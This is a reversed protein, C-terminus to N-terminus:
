LSEKDFEAERVNVIGQIEKTNESVILFPFVAVDIISLIRALSSLADMELVLILAGDAEKLLPTTCIM